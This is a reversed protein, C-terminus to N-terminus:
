RTEGGDEAQIARAQGQSIKTVETLLDSLLPLLEPPCEMNETALVLYADALAEHWNAMEPHSPSTAEATHRNIRAQHAAHARLQARATRMAATDVGTRRQHQLTM